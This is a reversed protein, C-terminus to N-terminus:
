VIGISVLAKYRTNTGTATIVVGWNTQTVPTSLTLQQAGVDTMAPFNFRTTTGTTSTTTNSVVNVQVTAGVTNSSLALLHLNAYMTKGAALASYSTLAAPTFSGTTLVDPDTLTIGRAVPQNGKASMSFPALEGVNGLIKYNFEQSLTLYCTSGVVENSAITLPTGTVSSTLENFLVPDPYTYSPTAGDSGAYFYGEVSIDTDALGAQYSRAGGSRFTTNELEDYVISIAVKNSQTTLDLGGLAVTADDLYTFAM